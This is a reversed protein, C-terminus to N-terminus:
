NRGTKQATCCNNQGAFIIVVAPPHQVTMPAQWDNFEPVGASM